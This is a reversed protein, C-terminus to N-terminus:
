LFEKNDSGADHVLVMLHSCLCKAASTMTTEYVASQVPKLSDGFDCVLFCWVCCPWVGVHTGGYLLLRDDHAALLTNCYGRPAAELALITWRQTRFDFTRMNFCFDPGDEGAGQRATAPELM